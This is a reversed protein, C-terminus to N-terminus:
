SYYCFYMDHDGDCSTDDPHNGSCSNINNSDEDDFHVHLVRVTMGNVTQCTGGFRYLIFPQSIPLEIGVSASGDSRCCYQVRTDSDYDGDPVPDQKSNQNNSDEDDWYKSGAFFGSPCSGSYRAICYHGRPWASSGSNGTILKTCYYTRYDGGLDMRMNYSALDSPSWFNANNNDETDQYRWGSYWGSPCGQM